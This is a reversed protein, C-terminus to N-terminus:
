ECIYHIDQFEQRFERVEDALTEPGNSRLATAILSALRPAHKEQVGWRVLEPTGIRLGNMDGDVAEIPLGVKAFEKALRKSLRVM